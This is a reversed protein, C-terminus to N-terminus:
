PLPEGPYFPLVITMSEVFSQLLVIIVSLQSLTVDNNHFSAFFLVHQGAIMNVPRFGSITINDTGDPFKKWEIPCYAFKDPNAEVCREALETCIDAALVVYRKEINRMLVEQHHTQWATSVKHLPSSMSKEKYTLESPPNAHPALQEMFENEDFGTGSCSQIMNADSM